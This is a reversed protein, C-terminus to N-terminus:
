SVSQTLAWTGLFPRLIASFHFLLFFFECDTGTMLKQPGVFADLAALQPGTVANATDFFYGRFQELIAAGDFGGFLPLSATGAIRGALFPLM